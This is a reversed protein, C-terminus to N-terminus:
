GLRDLVAQLEPPLPSDFTMPRGTDPHAFGLHVAHLFPRGIAVGHRAGGYRGDGVVPHGIASLHVRIQHTRGTELTCTLLSVPAPETFGQELRYRTRAERGGATVAMRTPDRTSRGIPADVAGTAPEVAGWVLALYRRDVRRAGLQAVLGAHASPSRAVVLLGSTDRDLRHVLGPREPEGVGAIEPFRALLGHVLTGTPQGAGPHVVLGAPKDVVVVAEDAHVVEFAVGPDAVVAPGPPQSAEVELVQGTELRSSRSTEVRGDVRVAGAAILEASRSRSVGLVLAVVRDLREGDLASPVGERRVEAV